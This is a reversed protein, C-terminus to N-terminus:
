MCMKLTSGTITRDFSEHAFDLYFTLFLVVCKLPTAHSYAGFLTSLTAYEAYPYAAFSTLSNSVHRTRPM